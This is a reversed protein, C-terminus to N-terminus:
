IQYGGGKKESLLRRSYRKLNYVQKAGLYLFCALVELSKSHPPSLWLSVEKLLDHLQRVTDDCVAAWQLPAPSPPQSTHKTQHVKQFSLGPHCGKLYDQSVAAFLHPFLWSIYSHTHTHAHVRTCAHVCVFLYEFFWFIVTIQLFYSM